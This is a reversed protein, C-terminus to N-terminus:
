QNNAVTEFASWINRIRGAIRINLDRRNLNSDYLDTLSSRFDVANEAESGIWNFFRYGTQGPQDGLRQVIKLIVLSIYNETQTRNYPTNEPFDDTSIDLSYVDFQVPLNDRPSAFDEGANIGRQQFIRAITQRERINLQGLLETLTLGPDLSNFLREVRDYDNQNTLRRLNFIIESENWNIGRTTRQLNEVIERVQDDSLETNARSLDAQQAQRLVNQLTSLINPWTFSTTTFPVRFNTLAAGYEQPTRLPSSPGFRAYFRRFREVQEDDTQRATLNQTAYLFISEWEERTFRNGVQRAGETNATTENNRPSGPNTASIARQLGLVDAITTQEKFVYARM